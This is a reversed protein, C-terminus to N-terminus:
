RAAAAEFGLLPQDGVRYIIARADKGAAIEDAPGKWRGFLRVGEDLEVAVIPYPVEGAFRPDLPTYIVVWSYVTGHGTAVVKEWDAAGCHPCDPQPPFFSRGCARCRPVELRGAELADWWWQTDLDPEPEVLTTQFTQTAEKM